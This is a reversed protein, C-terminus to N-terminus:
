LSLNGEPLESENAEDIVIIGDVSEAPQTANAESANDDRFMKKVSEVAESVGQSVSDTFSEQEKQRCARLEIRVNASANREDGLTANLDDITELAEDLREEMTGVAAVNVGYEYVLEGGDHGQKFVFSIFLVLTVILASKAWKQALLMALLKFFLPVLLAYVLYTGLLKHAKLEEQAEPALLAFAESGDAKGTFYAALYAAVAFLLLGLSTVSLARRKFGLNVLELILVIIPLVVAFHVVVPHLLLPVEFPLAIPISVDPLQM